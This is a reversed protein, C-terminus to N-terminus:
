AAEPGNVHRTRWSAAELAETLEAACLAIDAQNKGAVSEAINEEAREYEGVFRARKLIALILQPVNGAIDLPDPRVAPPQHHGLRM